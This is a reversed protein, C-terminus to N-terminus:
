VSDNGNINCHTIGNSLNAAQICRDVCIDKDAFCEKISLDMANGNDEFLDPEVKCNSWDIKTKM